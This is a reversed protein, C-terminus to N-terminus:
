VHLTPNHFYDLTEAYGLEMTYKASTSWRCGFYGLRRFTTLRGNLGLPSGAKSVGNSSEKNGTTAPSLLNRDEHGLLWTYSLSIRSRSMEPHRPLLRRVLRVQSSGFILVFKAPLFVPVYTHPEM